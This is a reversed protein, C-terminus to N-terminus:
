SGFEGEKVIGNEIKLEKGCMNCTVKQVENKANYKRM